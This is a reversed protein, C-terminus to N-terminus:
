ILKGPLSTTIQYLKEINTQSRKILNDAPKPTTQAAKPIEKVSYQGPKTNSMPFDMATEDMSTNLMIDTILFLRNNM